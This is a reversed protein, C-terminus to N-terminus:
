GPAAPQFAEVDFFVFIVRGVKVQFLFSIWHVANRRVKLPKNDCTRECGSNKRGAGRRGSLCWVRGGRRYARVRRASRSSQGCLALWAALDAVFFAPLTIAPLAALTALRGRVFAPILLALAFAPGLVFALQREVHAMEALPMFGIYHNLGDIEHWDGSSAFFGTTVHLGYPYQPATMSITWWPLALGIVLAAFALLFITRQGRPRTQPAAAKQGIINRHSAHVM